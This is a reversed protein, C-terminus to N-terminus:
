RPRLRSRLPMGLPTMALGLGAMVTYPKAVSLARRVMSQPMPGFSCGISPWLSVAQRLHQFAAEVNGDAAYARMVRYHQRALTRKIWRLSLGGPRTQGRHRSLFKEWVRIVGLGFVLDNRSLNSSHVRYHCLVAHSVYVPFREAARLILDLDECYPVDPDFGQLEELCRRRLMTTSPSANGYEILDALTNRGEPGNRQKPVLRGTEAYLFAVQCLATGTDPERDFIGVMHELYGPLWLDDDDLFAVLEGRAAHIGTNRAATSGRNCEHRVIRIRPDQCPIICELSVPSADDVVIVELDRFTQDLISRLAAQAYAECGPRLCSPVVVTVRPPNLAANALRDSVPQPGGTTGSDSVAHATM